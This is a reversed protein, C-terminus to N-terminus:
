NTLFNILKNIAVSRHSLFNKQRMTMQAFSKKYGDPIFIPDYGFGNEGLIKESIIGSVKGEFCIHYDKRTTLCISTKFFAKNNKTETIKKQIYEFCETRNKFRNIFRKSTVGPGGKLANICLGSDDAFCPIKTKRYGYTSKIKANEAFTRGNEKPESKINYNVSSLINLSFSNFLNKVENIKNKNGSFFLFTNM